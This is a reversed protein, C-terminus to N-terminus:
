AAARRALEGDRAMGPGTPRELHADFGACLEHVVTDEVALNGYIARQWTRVLRTAFETRRSELVRTALMLVDGETSSDRIPVEYVHALRSLLGRYLLALAARHEGRDWLLRATAGIDNPLSEPRIDLDQVHTPALFRAAQGESAHTRVLRYILVALAAVFVGILLWFLLQSTEAIWGFLDVIWRLWNPVRSPESPKEKEGDSVWRLRRVTTESALDPDAKLTEVARTVEEPSVPEAARTAPMAIALLLGLALSTLELRL